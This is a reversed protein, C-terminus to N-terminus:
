AKVMAKVTQASSFLNVLITWSVHACFEELAMYSEWRVHRRTDHLASPLPIRFRGNDDAKHLLWTCSRAFRVAREHKCAPGPSLQTWRLTVRQRQLCGLLSLGLLNWASRLQLCRRRPLM